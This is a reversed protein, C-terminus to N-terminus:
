LVGRKFAFVLGVGVGVCAGVIVGAWYLPDAEAALPEMVPHRHNHRNV